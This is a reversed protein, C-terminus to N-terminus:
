QCRARFLRPPACVVIDLDNAAVHTKDGVHYEIRLGRSRYVGQADVQVGLVLDYGSKANPVIRLGEVELAGRPWEFGQASGLDNEGEPRAYMGVLRMGTTPAVLSIRDVILDSGGTNRLRVVGVSFPQGPTVASAVENGGSLSTALQGGSGEDGSTLWVGLAVAAVVVVAVVAIRARRQSSRRDARRESREAEAPASM